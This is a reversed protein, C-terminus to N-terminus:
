DTIHQDLGKSQSNIDEFGVRNGFDPGLFYGFYEIINPHKLENLIEVEQM